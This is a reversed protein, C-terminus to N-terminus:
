DPVYTDNEYWTTGGNGTSMFFIADGAIIGAEGNGSEALLCKNALPRGEDDRGPEDTGYIIGGTFTFYNGEQLFLYVGAGEAWATAAGALGRTANRASLTNGSIIGGEMVFDSTVIYVGGGQAWAHRRDTSTTDELLGANGSIRGGRM